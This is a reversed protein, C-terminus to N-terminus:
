VCVVVSGLVVSDFVLVAAVVVVRELIEYYPEQKQVFVAVVIYSRRDPYKENAEVWYIIHSNQVSLAGRPLM